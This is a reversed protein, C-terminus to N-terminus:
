AQGVSDATVRAVGIKERFWPWHLLMLSGHSQWTECNSSEGRLISMYLDRDEFNRDLV